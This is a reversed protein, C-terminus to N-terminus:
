VAASLVIVILKYIYQFTAKIIRFLCKCVASTKKHYFIIWSFLIGSFYYIIYVSFKNHRGCRVHIFITVM